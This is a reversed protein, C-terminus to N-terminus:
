LIQIRFNGEKLDKIGNDMAKLLDDSLSTKGKTKSEM